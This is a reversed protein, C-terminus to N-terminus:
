GALNASVRRPPVAERSRADGPSLGTYRDRAPELPIEINCCVGSSPFSLALSGGLDQPILDRIISVGYRCDPLAAVAPGGVERWAISLTAADEGPGRNWNVEVRGHPTSLAGYKAATTGLEHLVMALVRTAAVPLTINPGGITPNADTGGPTLQRRVLEALDVGDWRSQSLLAHAGAMSRIRRDLAQIYEDLSGSDDRMDKAVVAVRALLNKVHHDLEAILLSQQDESRKRATIDLTLGKLCVLRGLADFEAKATEELWVERGDPRKFRFTVAYAPPDPTLRRGPAKIPAPDAPPGRSLFNGPSFTQRPDFGLSQAADLRRQSSGTGGDWVVTTVAGATLAEQLRAESEALAA